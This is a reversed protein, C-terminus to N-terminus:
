AAGLVRQAVRDWKDSRGPVDLVRRLLDKDGHYARFAEAITVGEEPRHVIEIPDGAQVEGEALVRFYAGVRGAATFRKVWGPEDMWNRFTVCPVRPATVEILAGGARWREGLLAGTLDPGETTLNEGFRGDRLDRGLEREWWEYDERAYAYVAQDLGGHSATDGQEDGQLGYEGVHTPGTVPSKDIATRGPAGAWEADAVRGVNVSVVRM